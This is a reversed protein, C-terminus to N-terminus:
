ILSACYLVSVACRIWRRCVTSWSPQILMRYWVFTKLTVRFRVRGTSFLSYCYAIYFLFLLSAGRHLSSIALKFTYGNYRM